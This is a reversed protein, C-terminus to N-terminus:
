PEFGAVLTLCIGTMFVLWLGKEPGVGSSSRLLLRDFRLTYLVVSSSSLRVFTCLVISSSWVGLFELLNCSCINVVTLIFYRMSINIPVSHRTGTVAFISSIVRHIKQVPGPGPQATPM